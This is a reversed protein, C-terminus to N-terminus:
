LACGGQVILGSLGLHDVLHMTHTDIRLDRITGSVSLSFGRGPGPDLKAVFMLPCDGPISTSCSNNVTVPFEYGSNGTLGLNGIIYAKDDSSAAVANAVDMGTGGLYTSYALGKGGAEVASFFANQSAAPLLNPNGMLTSQYANVTPFNTSATEGVVFAEGNPSVAIGKATDTGSGGLYSLYSFYAGAGGVQLKAVFANQVGQLVGQFTAPSPQSNNNNSASTFLNPSTTYGTVYASGASDVAIGKAVNNATPGGTADQGGIYTSYVLGSGLNNVESVFACYKGSPTFAGQVLGCAPVTPGNSVPFDAANTQGAVYVDGGADVAIANAMTSLGSQSDNPGLYTSYILSMPGSQRPDLEMVFAVPNSCFGPCTQEYASSTTPFFSGSSITTGAIYAKGTSDVAVSVLASSSSGLTVEGSYTSYTLTPDIVLPQSHDYWALDRSATSRTRIFVTGRWRGADFNDEPPLTGAMKAFHHLHSGAVLGTLLIGGCAIGAALKRHDNSRNGGSM